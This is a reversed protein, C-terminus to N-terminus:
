GIISTFQPPSLKKNSIMLKDVDSNNSCETEWPEELGLKFKKPCKWSLPPIFRKFLKFKINGHTDVMKFSNINHKILVM